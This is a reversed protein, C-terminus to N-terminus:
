KLDKGPYVVRDGCLSGRKMLLDSRADVIYNAVWQGYKL